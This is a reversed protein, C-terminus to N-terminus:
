AAYDEARPVGTRVMVLRAGAPAERAAQAMFAERAQEDCAIVEPLVRLVLAGGGAQELSAVRRALTEGTM